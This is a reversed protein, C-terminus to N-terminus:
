DITLTDTEARIFDQAFKEAAAKEEQTASPNDAKGGFVKGDKYIVVGTKGYQCITWINSDDGHPLQLSSSSM